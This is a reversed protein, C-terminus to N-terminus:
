SKQSPQTKMSEWLIATHSHEIDSPWSLEITRTINPRQFILAAPRFLSSEVNMPLTAYLLDFGFLQVKMGVVSRTGTITVPTARLSRTPVIAGSTEGRVWLGRKKGDRVRGFFLEGIEATPRFHMKEGQVAQFSGSALLGIFAKLFWREIDCGNFLV